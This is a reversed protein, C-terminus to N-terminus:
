WYFCGVYDAAAAPGTSSVQPRSFQPGIVAPFPAAIPPPYFGGWGYLGYAAAYGYPSYRYLPPAYAPFGYPNAYPRAYWPRYAYNGYYYPPYMSYGPAYYPSYRRIGRYGSWDVAVARVAETSSSRALIAARAPIAKDNAKDNAEAQDDAQAANLIALMGAVATACRVFSRASDLLSSRM